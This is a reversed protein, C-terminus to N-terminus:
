FVYRILLSASMNNEDGVDKILPSDAAVDIYNEWEVVSIVRWHQDFRYELELTSSLSKMGSSAQYVDLGSIDSELESIGFETNMYTSNAGSIDVVFSTRLNDGWFWDHGVAVFWVVGKGKGLLDPQLAVSAYSHGWRQVLLFQGELTSPIDDFGTFIADDSAERGEEVELFAVFQLDRNLQWYGGFEGLSVFYRDGHDTVYFARANGELESERNSSGAYTPETGVGLYLDYYWGSKAESLYFAGNPADSMTMNARASDIMLLGSVVTLLAKMSTRYPAM